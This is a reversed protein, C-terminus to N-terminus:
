ADVWGRAMLKQWRGDNWRTETKGRVKPAPVPIVESFAANTRGDGTCVSGAMRNMVHWHGDGAYRVDDGTEPREFGYQNSKSSIVLWEMCTREPASYCTVEYRVYMKGNREILKGVMSM